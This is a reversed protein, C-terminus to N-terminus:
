CRSNLFLAWCHLLLANLVLLTRGDRVGAKPFSCSLRQPAQMLAALVPRLSALALGRGRSWPVVGMGSDPLGLSAALFVM